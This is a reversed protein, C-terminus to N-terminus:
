TQTALRGVSNPKPGCINTSGTLRASGPKRPRRRTTARRRTTTSATIPARTSTARMRFAQGGDARRRLGALRRHHAHRARRIPRPDAGQDQGRRRREAARRLVAGGAALDPAWGCRWSNVIGGGFCFGVAGLKGTCDPRAKLWRRRPSSIRAADQGRDVKRFLEARKRTTAPIAASALDARRSRLRHFQRGGAAAGRRRYLSQPRPKRPDGAGGATEDANAPRVLYGKISGNGQPSPM